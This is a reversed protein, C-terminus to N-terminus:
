PKTGCPVTKGADGDACEFCYLMRPAPDDTIRVLIADPSFDYLFRGHNGAVTRLNGVARMAKAARSKDRLRQPTLALGFQYRTAHVETGYPVPNREGKKAASPTAM